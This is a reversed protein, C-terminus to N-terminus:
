IQSSNKEVEPNSEHKTFKVIYADVTQEIKSCMYEEVTSGNGMDQNCNACCLYINSKDWSGGKSDPVNHSRHISSSGLKCAKSCAYCNILVDGNDANANTNNKPKVYFSKDKPKSSDNKMQDLLYDYYKPVMKNMSSSNGIKKISQLRSKSSESWISTKNNITEQEQLKAVITDPILTCDGINIVEKDALTDNETVVPLTTSAGDVVSNIVSVVEDYKEEPVRDHMLVQAFMNKKFSGSEIFQVAASGYVDFDLLNHRDLYHMRRNKNNEETHHSRDLEKQRIYDLRKKEKIALNERELELKKDGLIYEYEVKKLEIDIAKKEIEIKTYQADLAKEALMRDEEMKKEALMRDEEMKKEALMRDEEMKKIEAEM